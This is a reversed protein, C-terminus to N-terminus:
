ANREGEHASEDTKTPRPRVPRVRIAHHGGALEWFSVQPAQGQSRMINLKTVAAEPSDAGVVVWGVETGGRAPRLQVPLEWSDSVEIAGLTEVTKMKVSTEVPTREERIVAGALVARAAADAAWDRNSRGMAPVDMLRAWGSIKQTYTVEAEFRVLPLPVGEGM